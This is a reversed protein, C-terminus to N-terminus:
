SFYIIQMFVYRCKELNWFPKPAVIYRNPKLRRYLIYLLIDIKIVM